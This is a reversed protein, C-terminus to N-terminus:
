ARKKRGWTVNGGAPALGGVPSFGTACFRVQGANTGVGMTYPNTVGAGSLVLVTYLNTMEMNGGIMAKPHMLMLSSAQNTGDTARSFRITGTYGSNTGGFRITPLAALQGASGPDRSRITLDASGSLNGNLFTISNDSNSTWWTQAASVVIDNAITVNQGTTINYNWLGGAGLTLANGGLTLPGTFTGNTFVISNVSLGAIDNNSPQNAPNGQTFILDDGNAVAGEAWNGPASWASSSNGTWTKTGGQASAGLLVCIGVAALICRATQM